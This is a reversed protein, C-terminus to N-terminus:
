RGAGSVAVVNFDEFLSKLGRGIREGRVKNKDGGSKVGMFTIQEAAHSEGFLAKRLQGPDDLADSLLAAFTPQDGNEFAPVPRFSEGRRYLCM